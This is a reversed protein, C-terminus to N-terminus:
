VGWHRTNQRNDTNPELRLRRTISVHKSYLLSTVSLLPVAQILGPMMFRSQTDSGWAACPIGQLHPPLQIQIFHFYIQSTNESTPYGTQSDEEQVRVRSHCLTDSFYKVLLSRQGLKTKPTSEKFFVSLRQRKKKELHDSCSFATPARARRRPKVWTEKDLSTMGM